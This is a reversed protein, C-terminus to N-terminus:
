APTLILPPPLAACRSPRGQVGAPPARRKSSSCATGSRASCGPCLLCVSLLPIREDLVTCGQVPGHLELLQIRKFLPTCLLSRFLALGHCVM